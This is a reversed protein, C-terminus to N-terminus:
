TVSARASFRVVANQALVVADSALQVLTSTVGVDSGHRKNWLITPYILM